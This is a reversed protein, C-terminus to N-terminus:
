TLDHKSIVEMVLFLFLAEHFRKKKIALADIPAIKPPQATTHVSTIAAGTM